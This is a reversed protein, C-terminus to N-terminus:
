NKEIHTILEHPILQNHQTKVKLSRIWLTTCNNTISHKLKQICPTLVEAQLSGCVRLKYCSKVRLNYKIRYGQLQILYEM